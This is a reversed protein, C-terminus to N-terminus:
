KVKKIFLRTLNGDPSLSRSAGSNQYAGISITQGSNLYSVSSGSLSRSTSASTESFWISMPGGATYNYQAGVTSASPAYTLYGSFEYFGSEPATFVGTSANFANHTDRSKSWGTIPVSLNNPISQASANSAIVVCTETASMYPTGQKKSVILYTSGFGINLSLQNTSNNGIGFLYLEVYDGAILNLESSVNATFEAGATPFVYSGIVAATGNIYIIPYYGANLVNNFNVRVSGSINYKGSSKINVRSNSADIASISDYGRGLSVPTTDNLLIKVASNNTAISQANNKYVYTSIDRGDYGDPMQVSSSWGSVPYSASFLINSGSALAIPSSNSISVPLVPATGTHTSVAHYRFSLQSSSLYRLESSVFTSGNNLKALGLPIEGATPLKSTDVSYPANIILDSWTGVAGTFQIRGKLEVSDGVRRTWGTTTYNTISGSISSLVPTWDQQWDTIPTGFVYESPSVSVISKVSWASSATESVYAILRMKVADYPTQISANFRDSITTSNSLLSLSSPEDVTFNVGDTSFACYWIMSSNNSPSGAVFTGSNVIYHVDIDLVKARYDLPLDFDTQIARGQRSAGVSKTMVFSTTGIGLPETTTTTLAFTGTGSSATFTGTPKAAAAYSGEIWGTSGQSGDPNTVFNINGSGSGSGSGGTLHWRLSTADYTFIFTADSPMAVNGATGTLIRDAASAASEDNNILLRTGTKNEVIVQQGSIGAPIGSISSLSANTLRIVGSSFSAVTANLGTTVTDDSSSYAIAKNSLQETNTRSVLTDSIDPTVLVRNATQSGRITTSTNTTGSADLVMKVTPDTVDVAAFETDFQAGSYGLRSSLGASLSFGGYFYVRVIPGSDIRKAILFVEQNAAVTAPLSNVDSTVTATGASRNVVAYVMNGNATLSRSTATLSIVTPAAGSVLSNVHLELAESFAITGSVTLSVIGGGALVINRDEFLKAIEADIKPFLTDAADNAASGVMSLAARLVSQRLDLQTPM